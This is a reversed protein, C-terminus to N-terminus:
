ETAVYKWGHSIVKEQNADIKFYLYDNKGRWFYVLYYEQAGSATVGPQSGILPGPMLNVVPNAQDLNTTLQDPEGLHALIEAAVTNPKGLIEGLQKMMTHKGGDPSDVADIWKDGGEFKGHVNRLGRYEKSIREVEAKDITQSM